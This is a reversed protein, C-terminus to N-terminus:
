ANEKKKWPEGLGEPVPALNVLRTFLAAFDKERAKAIPNSNSSFGEDVVAWDQPTFHKEALPLLETEELRMHDWHFEAYRDVLESFEMWGDPCSDEYHVFAAELERVLRTGERHEAVLRQVLPRAQPCIAYLRAFLYKDEKPHHLREPYEDIYRVMARFARFDPQIAVDEAIRTIHRLAHLVATISRHEDQIIRISEKM